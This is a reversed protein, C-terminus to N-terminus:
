DERRTRKLLWCPYALPNTTMTNAEKTVTMMTITMTTM